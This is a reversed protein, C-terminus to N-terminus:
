AAEGPVQQSAVYGLWFADRDEQSLVQDALDDMVRSRMERHEEQIAAMQGATFIRQLALGVIVNEFRTFRWKAFPPLMDLLEQNSPM